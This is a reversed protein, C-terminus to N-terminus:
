RRSKEIVETIRVNHQWEAFRGLFEFNELKEVSGSIIQGIPLMQMDISNVTNFSLYNRNIFTYEVSYLNDKVKTIRNCKNKNEPFYVYDYDKIDYNSSLVFLKSAYRLFEYKKGSLKYFVPAPITSILKEYKNVFSLNNEDVITLEKKVLDIKSVKGIIPASTREILAEIIDQWSVDYYDIESKGDSMSSSYEQKYQVSLNIDNICRSKLYYKVRDEKSVSDVFHDGIKFGIKCTKTKARLNLDNLLNFSSKSVQLIRPGLNKKGFQGGIDNSIIKFDKNYLSAILGSIGGGIIYHM